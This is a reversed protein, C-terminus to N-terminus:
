GSTGKGAGLGLVHDTRTQGTTFRARGVAGNLLCGSFVSTSTSVKDRNCAIRGSLNLLPCNSPDREGSSEKQQQANIAAELSLVAEDFKGLAGLPEGWINM